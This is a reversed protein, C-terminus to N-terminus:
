IEAVTHKEKNTLHLISQQQQQQQQQIVFLGYYCRFVFLRYDVDVEDGM